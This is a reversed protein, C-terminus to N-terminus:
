DELYVNLRGTIGAARMGAVREVLGRPRSETLKLTPFTQLLETLTVALEKQFEAAAVFDRTKFEITSMAKLRM